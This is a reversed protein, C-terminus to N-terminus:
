RTLPPFHILTNDILLEQPYSNVRSNLLEKNIPSNLCLKSGFFRSAIGEFNLFSSPFPATRVLPRSPQRNIKEDFLQAGNASINPPKDIPLCSVLDKALNNREPATSTSNSENPLINIGSLKFSYALKLFSTTIAPNNLLNSIQSSSFHFLYLFSKSFFESLIASFNPSSPSIYLHCM